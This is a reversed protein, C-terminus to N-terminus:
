EEDEREEESTNHDYKVEHLARMTNVLTQGWYQEFNNKCIVVADHMTANFGLKFVLVDLYDDRDSMIEALGSRMAEYDDETVFEELEDDSVMEDSPLMSAKIYLLPLIKLITDVFEARKMGHGKELFSCYEAAVTVFEIVNRDFILKSEKVM